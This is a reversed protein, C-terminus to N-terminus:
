GDTQSSKPHPPTSPQFLPLSFRVLAGRDALNEAEVRGHHAQAVRKVLALGLGLSSSSASEEVNKGRAFREFARPLFAPDFGPGADKVEFVLYRDTVSLKLETAGGAHKQANDLLNALARALFTADAVSEKGGSEDVCLAAPLGARELALLAVERRSLKTPVLGEFDLRSQALLKGTLDDIEVIEREIELLHKENAGQARLLESLVRLRTLPTRVEHSVAALLEKQDALQKEIRAAMENVSRALEGVEGPLHHAL